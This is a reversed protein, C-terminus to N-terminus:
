PLILLPFDRPKYLSTDYPFGKQSLTVPKQSIDSSSKGCYVNLKAKGLIHTWDVGGKNNIIAQGLVDRGKHRYKM